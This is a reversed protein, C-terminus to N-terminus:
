WKQLSPNLPVIIEEAFMIKRCKQTVSLYVSGAKSLIRSYILAPAPCSNMPLGAEDSCTAICYGEGEGDCVGTETEGLHEPQEAVLDQRFLDREEFCLPM